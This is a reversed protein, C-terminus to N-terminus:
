GLWGVFSPVTGISIKNQNILLSFICIPNIKEFLSYLFLLHYSFFYFYFTCCLYTAPVAWRKFFVLLSRCLCLGIIQKNKKTTNAKKGGCLAIM